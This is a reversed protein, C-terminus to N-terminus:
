GDRAFDRASTLWRLSRPEGAVQSAAAAIMSTGITITTTDTV